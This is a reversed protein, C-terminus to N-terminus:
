MMDAKWDMLELRNHYNPRKCTSLCCGMWLSEGLDGHFVEGDRIGHFDSGATQILSYQEALGKYLSEEDQSHDPHYVEIGKLGHNILSLILEQNKYLGPHALVPVGKATVILDIAEYPTIRPPNCYALGGKGLYNEFAEDMSQVVGKKILVSAIHPRGTNGRGEKEADVEEMTISIGLGQLREIVMENRIQRVNRLQELKYLFVPDTYDIFYGLVHIDM